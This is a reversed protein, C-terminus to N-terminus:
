GDNGEKQGVLSTDEALVDSILESIPRDDRTEPLIPQHAQLILILHAIEAQTPPKDFEIRFSNTASMPGRLDKQANGERDKEFYFLILKELAQTRRILAAEMESM